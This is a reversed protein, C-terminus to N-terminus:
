AYSSLDTEDFVFHRAAIGAFNADGVFDASLLGALTDLRLDLSDSPDPAAPSGAEYLYWDGFQNEEYFRGDVLYSRMGDTTGDYSFTALEFM